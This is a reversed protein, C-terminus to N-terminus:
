QNAATDNSFGAVTRRQYADWHVRAAAGAASLALMFNKAVTLPTGEPGFDFDFSQEGPVSPASTPTTVIGIVVPTGASDEFTLTKASAAFTVVSVRIRQVYITYNVNRVTVLTLPGATGTAVDIDGSVDQYHRLFKTYDGAM